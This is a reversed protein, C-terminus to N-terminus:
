ANNFAYQSCPKKKPCHSAIMADQQFGFVISKVNWGKAVAFEMPLEPKNKRMTGVLTLKKQLLKRALLLNTFFNGCTIIRGTKGIDELLDLVVRTDQNTERSSGANKGTYVQMKWTYCCTSNCITQIKIGYKGSKSPIYQNFFCRGRICVLQEDLTMSPGSTYFDGLCSDWTEFVERIQQLKDPSWNQHRSQASDLRLVCLIEQYRRRIMNRNFIPQGDLTSWLQVVSENNSKYVSILIIVGLFIKFEEDDM